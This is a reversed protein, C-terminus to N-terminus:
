KSQKRNILWEEVQEWVYRKPSQMVPMGMDEWKRITIANYPLGVSKLKEQLEVQKLYITSM